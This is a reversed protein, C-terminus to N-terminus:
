AQADRVPVEENTGAYRALRDLHVVKMKTRPTKQIRYVVDNIKSIVTYPGEWAPHLKPSRGKKRQPNHLWVLDGEKFGQSNTRLDYRNKMKESAMKINDRVLEHVNLLTERVEDVYNNVELPERAPTGFLLDCPLRIERGFVVRSPTQGTTDHIAARYAMLFLPLHQDWDRQHEDVMKCLHKEMTQNFREVMGDSQPHLPTTRTKRMGLLDCLGSFVRSEFNRGQDSHLELPVGFRSVFNDVLVRAVTSAEQNPLAYAEPWKSFYDNAVLIYKNGQHTEPFPGAVDIAIREFPAGVNYQQMKGRTRTKPGKTAACKVCQRCWREVDDRSNVWYYRERVKALTKNVGLHGGSKGDHVEALVERVRNKPLVLQMTVSKGDASEWARKLLGNEVRLSEWQAWLAKFERSKSSVEAWVPKEEGNEKKTLIQSINEDNLQENRLNESTWDTPTGFTIRKVQQLGQQKEVRCCHKCDEKCPRRSLADANGHSKGPRHEIKLDYQQLKEIWRAVQGEPNKLQLLWKLAAHDTRILFRRGYLYKHFHDVSKVIALLEKRTVCYNREPKSLVKSYFEIVREQGGQIQSLVSGIGLNSADTDLVYLGKPQPYSLIPSSCLAAKLRRFANDCDRSWSFVANQETLKHLPKAIDAFGEVFRRYYTCLGLFSRVEHKDAPRPWDRVAEIKEPDTRIGEPSIVHGLFKVEKRFLSCKKPNLTLHANRLRRFVERLNSLHEEFTGGMVLIDDLYVLCTKWTLGRLVLEMLREFTAPANCLGFPMVTFQYLGSGTSFATKEKDKPDIAVQWYGSKLDLTSFWASGALASLTDDIRPLPYSDKKTIDNLRRYDVCFRTSGDKKSVLVVPSSWPSTSEEIVGEELMKSVLSSVEEQKAFPLRRPPQRIAAADGTNIRHRVINTHGPKDGDLAFIDGEENIFKRLQDREESALKEMEHMLLMKELTGDRSSRKGLEGGPKEECRAIWAVPELGAIDDGKKVNLGTQNINAVRIPIRGDLNVLSRAVMLKSDCNPQAEVLAAQYGGLDGVAEAAIIQETLGPVNVDEAAVLKVSWNSQGKSKKLFIEENGSKLTRSRMDLVFGFKVLLDLGLIFEDYIGAVIVDATLCLRGIKIEVTAEGQIDVREGTATRLQLEGPPQRWLLRSIMDPRVISVTAGTDITLHCRGGNVTAEALLSDSGQQLRSISLTKPADRRGALMQGPM